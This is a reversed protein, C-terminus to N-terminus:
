SKIVFNEKTHFVWYLSDSDILHGSSPPHCASLIPFIDATATATEKPQWKALTTKLGVSNPLPSECHSRYTIPVSPPLSFFIQLLVKAQCAEAMSITDDEPKPSTNLALSAPYHPEKPSYLVQLFKKSMIKYYVHQGVFAQWCVWRCRWSLKESTQAQGEYSSELFVLINFWSSTIVQILATFFLM